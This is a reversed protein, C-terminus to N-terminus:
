DWIPHSALFSAVLADISIKDTQAPIYEHVLHRHDEYLAHVMGSVLNNSQIYTEAVQQRTEGYSPIGSQILPYRSINADRDPDNIWAFAQVARHQFVLETFANSAYNTNLIDRLRTEVVAGAAAKYSDLYAARAALDIEISIVPM